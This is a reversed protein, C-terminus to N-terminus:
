EVEGIVRFVGHFDKDSSYSECSVENIKSTPTGRYLFDILDELVESTGSAYILVKGQEINQATGEIALKTACKKVFEQYGVGQVKGQVTIKLSKKM